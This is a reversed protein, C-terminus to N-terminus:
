FIANIIGSGVAAGAGFGLGGAASQAMTNKLQGYKKKKKDQGEDPQLGVSNVVPPNNIPYVPQQPPPQNGYNTYGPAGYMKEQQHQLSPEPPIKQVYTSPFLGQSGKNRGTWWDPNTEEVIDIVDGVSITLDNPEKKDENYPWLARAKPYSPIPQPPQPLHPPHPQYTSVQNHPQPFSLPSDASKDSAKVTAAALKSRIITVEETTLYGQAQLFDINAQTQSVVHSVFASNSM